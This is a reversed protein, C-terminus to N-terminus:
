LISVHVGTYVCVCVCVCVFVCVLEEAWACFTPDMQISASGFSPPIPLKQNFFTFLTRLREAPFESCRDSPLLFADLTDAAERVAITDGVRCSVDGQAHQNLRHEAAHVATFAAKEDKEAADCVTTLNKQTLLAAQLRESSISLDARLRTTVSDHALKRQIADLKNKRIAILHEFQATVAASLAERTSAASVVLRGKASWDNHLAVGQKWDHRPEELDHLGQIVALSHTPPRHSDTFDNFRYGNSRFLDQMVSILSSLPSDGLGGRRYCMLISLILFTQCDSLPHHFCNLCVFYLLTVDRSM